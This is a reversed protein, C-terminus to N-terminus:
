FICLYACLWTAKYKRASKFFGFHSPASQRAAGGSVSRYVIIAFTNKDINRHPRQNIGQGQKLIRWWMKSNHQCVSTISYSPARVTSSEDVARRRVSLGMAWVLASISRRGAENSHTKAIVFIIWNIKKANAINRFINTPRNHACPANTHIHVFSAAPRRNSVIAFISIYIFNFQFDM